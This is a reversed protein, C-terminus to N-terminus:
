GSRVEVISPRPGPPQQSAHAREAFLDRRHEQAGPLQRRLTYMWAELSAVRCAELKKFTRLRSLNVMPGPDVGFPPDEHSASTVSDVRAATM